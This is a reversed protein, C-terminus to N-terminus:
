GGLDDQDLEEEDAEFAIVGEESFRVSPRRVGTDFLLEALQGPTVYSMEGSLRYRVDGTPRAGGVDEWGVAAPLLLRQTGKRRLTAEAARQGSFVRDGELSLSYRVIKLPLAVENENTANLGFSLVMGQSTEQAVTVDKVDLEPAHYWSCGGCVGTAIGLIALM